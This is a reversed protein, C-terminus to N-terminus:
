KIHITTYAPSKQVIHFFLPGAKQQHKEGIGEGEQKRKPSKSYPIKRSKSCIKDSLMIQCAIAWDYETTDNDSPVTNKKIERFRIATSQSSCLHFAYYM